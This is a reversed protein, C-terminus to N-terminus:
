SKEPGCVPAQFPQLYIQNLGNRNSTFLIKTGDPSLSPRSNRVQDTTIRRLCSGDKKIMFIEFVNPGTRNASFLIDDSNPAWSPSVNLFDGSTLTNLVEGKMNGVVIQSSKMDDGYQVWAMLKGDPSIAPQSESRTKDVSVLRPTGGGSPMTFIQLRGLRNSAFYIQDTKPHIALDGDFGRVDTLRQIRDGNLESSYIDTPLMLETESRVPESQISRQLFVPNEKVEDTTSAYFFARGKTAYRPSSTDGDQFTVRRERGTSLNREYIQPQM